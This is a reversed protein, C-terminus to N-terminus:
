GKVPSKEHRQKFPQCNGNRNQRHIGQDFSQFRTEHEKCGTEHEAQYGHIRHTRQIRKSLGHGIVGQHHCDARRHTESENSVVGFTVATKNM